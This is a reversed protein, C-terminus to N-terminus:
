RRGEETQEALDASEGDGGATGRGANTTGTPVVLPPLLSFVRRGLPRPTGATGGENGPAIRRLGKCVRGRKRISRGPGSVPGM